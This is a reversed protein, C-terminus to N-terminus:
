TNADRRFRQTERGEFRPGSGVVSFGKTELAVATESEVPVVAEVPTKVTRAFELVDDLLMSVAEPSGGVRTVAVADQRADFALFGDIAGAEDRDRPENEDRLAVRVTRERFLFQPDIDGSALAVIMESDDEHADRIEM